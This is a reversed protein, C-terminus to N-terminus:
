SEPRKRELLRAVKEILRKFDFPKLVYGAGGEVLADEVKGIHNEGSLYLFPIAATASDKKLVACMSVGDMNPMGVDAIVLDPSFRKVTELGEIGDQATAVTYNAAMFFRSLMALIQPDDDVILIKPM